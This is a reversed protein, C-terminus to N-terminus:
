AIQLLNCVANFQLATQLVDYKLSRQSPLAIQLTNCIADLIKDDWINFLLFFQYVAFHM